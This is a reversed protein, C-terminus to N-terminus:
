LLTWDNNQLTVLCLSNKITNNHHVTVYITNYSKTHHTSTKYFNTSLLITISGAHLIVMFRTNFVATGVNHLFYFVLNKNVWEFLFADFIRLEKHLKSGKHIQFLTTFRGEVAGQREIPCASLSAQKQKAKELNM